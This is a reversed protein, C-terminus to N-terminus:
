FQLLDFERRLTSARVKCVQDAGVNCLHLSDWAVRVSAKSAITGILESPVVKTLVELTMWDETYNSIGVRM